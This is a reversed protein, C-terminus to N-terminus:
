GITVTEGGWQNSVTSVPIELVTVDEKMKKRDTDLVQEVFSPTVVYGGSYTERAKELDFSNDNVDLSIDVENNITVRM